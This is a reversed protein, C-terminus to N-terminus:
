FGRGSTHGPSGDKLTRNQSRSPLPDQREWLEQLSDRLEACMQPTIHAYVGRM